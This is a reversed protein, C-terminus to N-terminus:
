VLKYTRVALKLAIAYEVIKKRYQEIKKNDTEKIVNDYFTKGNLNESHEKGYMAALLDVIKTKDVDSSSSGNMYLALAPKLGSMAVSVSFAAIQGNYSKNITGNKLIPSDAIVDNALCILDNKRQKTIMSEEKRNRYVSLNAIDTVLLPM